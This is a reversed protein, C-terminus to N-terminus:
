SAIAITEIAISKEVQTYFYKDVFHNKMENTTLHMNPHM